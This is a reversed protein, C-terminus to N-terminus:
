GFAKKVKGQPKISVVDKAAIAVPQKTQPNTGTRAKRHSKTLIAMDPLSFKGNIQVESVAIEVLKDLVARVETKAQGTGQAIADILDQKNM